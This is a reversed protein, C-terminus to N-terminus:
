DNNVGLPIELLNRRDHGALLAAGQTRYRWQSVHIERQGNERIIYRWRRRGNQETSVTYYIHTDTM